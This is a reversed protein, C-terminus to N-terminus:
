STLEPVWVAFAGRSVQMHLCRDILWIIDPIAPRVALHALAAPPASTLGVSDALAPRGPAPRPPLVGACPRRRAAAQQYAHGLQSTSGASSCCILVVKTRGAQTGTMCKSAYPATRTWSWCASCQCQVLLSTCACAQPTGNSSRLPDSCGLQRSLAWAGAPSLRRRPQPVPVLGAQAWGTSGGPALHVAAACSEASVTGPAAAAGAAGIGALAGALEEPGLLRGAGAELGGVLVFAAARAAGDAAAGAAAAHQPASVAFLCHPWAEHAGAKGAM